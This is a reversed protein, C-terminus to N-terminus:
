FEVEHWIAHFVPVSDIAILSLVKKTENKRIRKGTVPWPLRFRIQFGNDGSTMVGPMEGPMPVPM